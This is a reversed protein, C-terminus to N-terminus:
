EFYDATYKIMTLAMQFTKQVYKVYNRRKPLCIELKWLIQPAAETRSYVM